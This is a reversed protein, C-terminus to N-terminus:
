GGRLVNQIINNINHWVGTQYNQNKIWYSIEYDSIGSKKLKNIIGKNYDSIGSSLLSDIYEKGRLEQLQYSAKVYEFGTQTRLYRQDLNGPFRTRDVADADKLILAIKRASQRDNSAINYKNFIANLDYENDPIAHYEIAAQIMDVEKKSHGNALWLYSQEAGQVGHEYGINVRGTDHYKAAEKLIKMEENNLGEQLGIYMANFLVKEVHDAGHEPITDQYFGSLRLDRVEAEYEALRGSKKMSDMVDALDTQAGRINYGYRNYLKTNINKKVVDEANIQKIISSDNQILRARVHLKGTNTDYYSGIVEYANNRGLVVEQMGYGTYDVVDSQIYAVKTGKPIEIELKIKRNNYSSNAEDMSTALFAKDNFITGPKINSMMYKDGDRFLSDVNRSVIISEKTPPQKEIYADLKRIYDDIDMGANKQFLIGYGQKIDSNMGLRNTGDIVGGEQQIIAGRTYADVQFGLFKSYTALLEKEDISISDKKNTLLRLFTNKDDQNLYKYYSYIEEKSKREVDLYYYNGDNGKQGIRSRIFGVPDNNYESIDGPNILKRAGTDLTNPHRQDFIDLLEEPTRHRLNDIDIVGNEVDLLIAKKFDKAYEKNVEELADVDKLLKKAKSIENNFLNGDSTAQGLNDIEGVASLIAGIAADRGIAGWSGRNEFAENFTINPNMQTDVYARFPTDAANFGADTIINLGTKALQGVGFPNLALIAGTSTQLSEWAANLGGYEMGKNRNEVTKWDGPIERIQKWVDYEQQSIYGNNKLYILDQDSMKRIKCYADYEEKSIKGNKYSETIGQWSNDKVDGWYEGTYKGFAATATTATTAAVGIAGGGTIMGAAIIPVYYGLGEIFVYMVGDRQFVKESNANITKLFKNEEYANDFFDKVKKKSVDEMTENWMKDIAEQAEKESDYPKNINFRNEMGSKIANERVKTDLIKWTDGVAEAFNGGGEILAMGANITDYAVTALTTEEMEKKKKERYAQLQANIYAESEPDLKARENTEEWAKGSTYGRVTGVGPVSDLKKNQKEKEQNLRDINRKLLTASNSGLKTKRNLEELSKGSTTKRIMGLGYISNLKNEYEKQKNQQKNMYYELLKSSNSDLKAKENADSWSFNLISRIGNRFDFTVKSKTKNVDKTYEKKVQHYVDHNDNKVSYNSSNSGTTNSLRSLNSGGVKFSFGSARAKEESENAELENIANRFDQQIGSLSVGKIIEIARRITGAGEFDSPIIINASSKCANIRTIANSIASNASGKINSNYQM